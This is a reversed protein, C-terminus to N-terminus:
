PIWCVRNRLGAEDPHARMLVDLVQVFRGINKKTRPLSHASSIVLGFHDLGASTAQRLLPMFDAVDETLFATRDRAALAFLDADKKDLLQGQEQVAAVDHGKKRLVEAIARPYHEDLLLRM